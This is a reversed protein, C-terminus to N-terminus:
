KDVSKTCINNWRLKLENLMEQIVPVDPKPCKDKLRRGMRNTNDFAPQKAGLMRQFDKHRAIQAKIKESDNSINTDAELFTDNETLWDLLERWADNFQSLPCFIHKSTQGIKRKHKLASCYKLFLVCQGLLFVGLISNKFSSSSPFSLCDHVFVNIASRDFCIHIGMTM